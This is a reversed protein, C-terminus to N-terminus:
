FKMEAGLSLGYNDYSSTGIGDHFVELAFGISEDLDYSFETEVRGRVHRDPKIYDGRTKSAILGSGGTFMIAGQNVEIPIEINMGLEVQGVGITQGFVPIGPIGPQITTGTVFAAARDQGWRVDLHPILRVGDNEVSLAMDGEMRLQGLLRRTNFSGTRTGIDPDSFRIDNYSQGYLLRGEFYLPWTYHRAAFWPGAMWGIGNISGANGAIDHEAIDLQLMAGAVLHESYKRHIGFSGMAFGTNGSKSNIWSGSIEGWISDGIFDGGGNLTLHDNTLNLTLANNETRPTENEKLLPILKRQRGLLTIARNELFGGIHGLIPDEDRITVTVTGSQGPIVGSEVFRHRVRVTDDVTNDDAITGLNVTQWTNWNATNFILRSNELVVSSHDPFAEVIVQQGPSKDLKVQYTSSGGEQITLQLPSAHIDVKALPNPLVTITVTDPESAVGQHDTVVLSFIHIVSESSSTPINAVFTPTATNARELIVPINNDLNIVTWAWSAITGDPDRSGTGDLIVTTGSIVDMDQGAHAVPPMNVVNGGIDPEPAVVTIMVTDTDFEGTKDTVTLTFVHTVDKMDNTLRDAVFTPKQLDPHELTIKMGTGETYSWVYSLPTNRPDVMSKSGDLTVTAGSKIDDQDPGANAMPAAFASIITIEVTDTLSEVDASDTVILSIEHVVNPDGAELSDAVFTPSSTGADTLTVTESSWVWSKVTRRPDVTSASGDLTVTTGPAVEDQDPGANAVPDRFRSIITITVTSASSVVDASDTVILSIEHVVNPDGADLNDATFTPTATDAGTLTVTESSWVWTKVTRRPDVTSASGDLTVTTGPAVEDQDPGANAVPNRFNSVVTITVTSASSVVDASDTVILSIEHVVNPDGAQLSDATFTPTSTNAGALTATESTWAWTKVTRRPDVTSASGDLTVITGPVINDQNPGANAIPNRFSSVVTITVTSASSVVDASDTVILSIEHVVNPDGAQLSDATFTPTSTNAGALTATESTWAWTKVTRRPDVTSASGDLTVITGPVVEDQNPGANAVPNRFSSVVTITVTSASSVVDASDTVVLSIVHVVNPDGAQLSDATFTPTSTNAGTLTTTESTWVWTKFTRRPDVTSARGDLTVITGPAVEDQDPGANAVPNRFNSVVTITVMSASSDVDASDTVVLSIVHVVDPDGAELNDAVFTPSSTDADTLTVTESTWGWTKFTRRPDVTSARGDLTVITGPAVEDQDSGANAIPNRFSSVVTITVTSASSNVDASDTIILSIEHVVNPDGADLNDATFTPTSTNAGALTATESTWVWTKIERRPDVTSASGDLTVVAGPVVEDQDPGANAVPNRFNSVVTITVMSASSDVDASDTVVLSIEHVVNPDGAQLSDATFTPTSTNAGALTATESTWAWTKFTRRPDVTSASGDLTVITGPAVEDQDPGANAVPNRFNSVVTITVMSASSDVDASDTVVLSIVHVVDPDGAELNDAVFTPSSTGADTLTATESTWVWTKIERRPDVTSASGDLTVVAGPVVEDQDPGANAVPNRFNSVVTITVMSASSDVDASDTVVLSIVHVVDPDGAELNDAVFTPSSTGADTLTVTESTWAWAKIERRPDVTSASGDLTVVAGPVVEDQDPGANAVPNRFSSVVTITVTSASSVVDASDTVILSIEHVVNPDGAELNDATFTPTSTNAGTLTATESTWVWTKIERRPDVTSASGDLTVVAGPVVEDQDPGANAVPNRFSSVVTVTVTSASSEVDASDTIILSIKHVVNPDGANLSDATFTPTSTNAGALTATESTWAWAKIERRPDVTSASGDLTVVAGPVVEDQDPGANAIPNRFSSVVTITVTSASSNVDASDTVVLSIVHVVDPDGAELNDAVFTPSSTGADTLTATESTWVWTKIERRPDVTSASGDLTVVAGPVVEDQDPGANAVPNRFSSVVTITVMSASSDVDASDTIILSIEHVVDPDGAELSNAVFTPSSTGADTLTVTESTWAWAKIERRPDVTSASGDLTVVAGPVVEDQDPGANAVPNKFSSVVTITVASASSDVDASDTIILSIEHVVNPDGANLSDATFTPTSTNAGTLTVTESTWAWTKFTRRPDVTSASGDLTVITGPAVEDQDPGANAVPNRFSSVVTITVASASSDVDASDTIILSIEHVVDPDGAELSNAVFTPSSTGADTLTVTESTWAWAKIERRPDVTSASGDLTVVAGPVVEDQDPGANAVPNRFSSVVTITVASASSDVDASDTIILSIKHVVDPDGAELSNAVFTPSSTGADTLTVTESTWAWAKIERRPDVTSASGDLTVVAGPVIEDQDPGANAIPNRFSSVVTITVTSASSNVDASDTIILSIEHVVNPDGANLSDATFTPTSTNAGTLTVTESTWAWTKIERRPDVTSASGDLTVVAGPVVEDQDPGANAIPNRFSSVVTIIVTSASSNVDASDTIILSIEHIVDPEGAELSDATFTPTTTDADTLTATESTWAWAKIERRPDVTSASGDLTVVAGPVVEDQDPGANAIPNRFSSVVTITVMSASSEVDASDTVVLSIVHVVDPDGAELNDATFTPTSTNAGALTATESTWVWTKIERRPDVTSASGDLTVITGPVVEDQDPGANAVPNRFSSVVTITVMSASSEVDASDTVILSIVHVVNPDGAELNDATFTPTSTNAGALTATESTWVWTKIERRPDVTSASGDLTVITGPAVEDQDPGANAVPNRFSSVVTVTVTSASSVVDASDTVILSIEHIVDPDGAELSDATFTPTTTDADTLTATESTWTWTKIERRPDVTSASGDLTVITGPAVEDQDPGANAVPNRFSSVVTITVMSASSEVDASDTVVLSIVHVVDPDGAELNDATFTPTSTNAGALTATESTWVWTKIERRPDVTSASGDLTVITGPAVEDQDPGANAVPNRFSSVVTITVTSASSVVDASDTVILSIEHVVDPDGAELSNAVFTPSSTGADTLTVTESTWAWTKIERRPDVTSASGDLTVIAGPVIEDQDPGANAVPNRFSSVVTITVMSASSEVDASDTIVLSIEHVVDPDGAQLSDATFTPTSTNAGTLTATESTWAWRKVTRRRDVTSGNGDLTVITGPVVEDQDQGANAVPMAFGPVVTITVTSASSEVDASDTVILEFIHTADAVGPALAEATFTPAVTNAGALVINSSGTGGSRKWAWRKVTRRRDVTSGNGDLTVITGPVVEDQDQGANAVPMAFGPVVTITVTSASSEVDASDTVILEFIHTADAVGPALAEATFTPAVTNAGALVINSSGTGGSRKWAWTKVSRRRDVTSGSGDLTVTTEPVIDDQNPGANAVPNAFPSQVTVRTADSLVWRVNNNSNGTRGLRLNFDHTVDAAEPVLTDATFTTQLASKENITVSGGTGGTRTWQISNITGYTNLSGTGDLTATAASVVTRDEGANVDSGPTVTVTIPASKATGGDNDTVTLEFVHTVDDADDALTDARFIQHDPTAGPMLVTTGTGGTRRWSYAVVTGDPDMSEHGYLSVLAGSPVTQDEMGIVATPLRNPSMVTVMVTDPASVIGASDTIVLSFVHTVDETGAVLSDAVFTPQAPNTTDLVVLSNGTGATRTWDHSRITRGVAVSSGTGDLSVTEGSQISIDPGAHAVPNAFATVVTVTVTDAHSVVDASDTVVLSFVHTINEAGEALVDATFEPQAAGPQDLVIVRDGTGSDHTWKYSKITKSSDTTSGTGDLIVTAGSLVWQDPGAHAIPIQAVQPDPDMIAPPATVTITVHDSALWSVNTNQGVVLTQLGFEHTVSESEPNLTDAIFTTEAMHPEALTISGGTGSTRQWFYSDIRGHDQSSGSGDLTVTKGSDVTQDPGANAGGNATVTITISVPMSRADEDDVVVLSFVHTVDLAGPLLSDARFNVLGPSITSLRVNNGSGSTRKWEWSTVTGDIDSSTRGDLWVSAGAPVTQNAGILALPRANPSLVTITVTDTDTEGASDTVTLTFVHTVDIAGPDLNRATFEPGSINANNLDISGGTGGTRKWSWSQITRGPAVIRSGSGDLTVTKGSAIEQDPGADAIPPAKPIVTIIVSDTAETGDSDTLVLHFELLVALHSSNLVPATLELRSGPLTENQGSFDFEAISYENLANQKWTTSKITRRPDVTSGISDLTFKEGSFVTRNEGANAVPLRPMSTVTITITDTDTAGDDDTVTLTFIHSVDGANENPPGTSFTPRATNADTLIINDYAPNVTGGTRKWSWSTINGDQDLSDSGDLTVTEDFFAMKDPGANAVPNLNGARVTITVSDTSSNPPDPITGPPGSETVTLEFIHTVDDADPALRDATFFPRAVNPNDLTIPGGTGGTRQWNWSLTRRPDSISDNGDLIVTSGAAVTRDPGAHAVPAVFPAIATITVSDISTEGLSDTVTLTFEYTQNVSGPEQLATTFDPMPQDANNLSVPGGTGSTRNWLYSKITRRRDTVQSVSGDLTLSTGSEITRDPGANAIPPASPTVTVTVVDSISSRSEDNVRLIFEHTVDNADHALAETKFTFTPSYHHGWGAPILVGTTRAERYPYGVVEPNGTGGTRTWAHFTISRRPDTTSGSGDLTVSSEAVVLQDSGANAVPAADPSFVTVKIDDVVLRGTSDIVNYTFDHTVHDAGPDLIDTTFTIIQGHNGRQGPNDPIEPIITQDGTGGTRLWFRNRISVKPDTQERGILSLTTGSRIYYDGGAQITTPRFPNEVTIIVSDHMDWTVNTNDGAFRTQLEFEHIVDDADPPIAKTTFTTRVREPTNLRVQDDVNIRGGNSNIWRWLYGSVTGFPSSSKSGDLTITTEPAVTRDEGANSGGGPTVTITITAPASKAGDHDTVVLEFIYEEDAGGPLISDTFFRMRGPDTTYLTTPDGGIQRWTWAAVDGDIDRSNRGNLTVISDASVTQNAGLIAVPPRNPPRATIIVEDTAINGASDTVTLSFIYTKNEAGDPLAEPTFTPRSITRSSLTVPEGTGGALGEKRSWELSKIELDPDVTSATGDLTVEAGAFKTQDPGANAVPADPPDTVTVILEDVATWTINPNHGTVTMQLQFEHTVDTDGPNVIDAVFTTRASSDNSFTVPTGTGESRRWLYSNITGLSTSSASGDLTVTNGSFVRQDPGADPKEGATATITISVPESEAMENDTVVLDFTYTEDPEGDAISRTWFGPHGPTGTGTSLLVNAGTGGARTWTWSTITGDDDRSNRGDLSIFTDSPVTQNAGIIAVPIKNPPRATITVKDNSTNGASDTVALSFIYTVSKVGEPLTEATFTPRFVINSSLIVPGGTGGALGEDRSWELSKIELDPDVTSGTADLTVEAGPIVRQDPGAKAVPADPPDTVTVIVEDAATWTINPNHGTVTMQLEIEHTVDPNGSPVTDATFTSSASFQNNFTIPAGTGGTRRWLYSNITGLTTSSASGDLTVTNGSFVRQDPGANPKEGATATITITVPVSEAKENDTVVLSFIYTEDPEGVAINRTWFGSRGQNGTVTNLLVDAGTGGTRTWTWSTVTGDDDRSNRGDLSIYTDSPVTQNAGIIAVPIKNPPRATITVKDNSTNGASDTVILNFIYTVSKVGEPLTEATFTPRSVINSSLTVPGGTGGLPGDSRIWQLSKIELDPDVTSGTADLTVEAGPIVRQDQGANAVPADPPDTVTVMMSDSVTWTINPNHGTVGTKLEFTHTVDEGGPQVTDAVFTTSAASKNALTVPAGTGGTRQWSYSDITGLSTSSASGDLEVTAGSFARQDPGANPREGATATITISVPASSVRDNDTVVLEIIYTEDDEGPAIPNTRFELRSSADISFSVNGGSGGTRSWNRSTITGDDTSNRSDLSIVTGAPVTQNMGLIAVPPANQALAHSVGFCLLVITLGATALGTIVPNFRSTRHSNNKGPQRTLCYSKRCSVNKREQGALCYPLVTLMIFNMMFNMIFRDMQRKCFDSILNM